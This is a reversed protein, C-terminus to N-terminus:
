FDWLRLKLPIKEVEPNMFTCYHWVTHPPCCETNAPILLVCQNWSSSQMVTSLEIRTCKWYTMFAENDNVCLVRDLRDCGSVTILNQANAIAAQQKVAQIVQQQKEPTLQKLTEMDLLQEM